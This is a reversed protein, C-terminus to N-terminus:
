AAGAVRQRLTTGSSFRVFRKRPYTTREGQPSTGHRAERVRTDFRGFGELMVKGGLGLEVAILGDDPDFLAQVARLAQARSLGCRDAVVQVLEMKNM